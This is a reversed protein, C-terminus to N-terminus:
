LYQRIAERHRTYLFSVLLLASGLVILTLYRDRPSLRWVDVLLIKGVCLLLLGLGSLRFSRESVWLWVYLNGCGRTGVFAHDLWAENGAGAVRHSPRNCCLFDGARPAM